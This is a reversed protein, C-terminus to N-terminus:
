TNKKLKEAANVKKNYDTSLKYIPGPKSVTTKNNDWASTADIENESEFSLYDDDELEQQTKDDILIFQDDIIEQITRNDVPRYTKKNFDDINFDDKITVKDNNEITLVGDEVDEITVRNDDSENESKFSLYDNDALKQQTRDDIPIFQDDIIEQITRNDVLRIDELIKKSAAVTATSNTKDFM